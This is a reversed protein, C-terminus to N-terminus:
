RQTEAYILNKVAQPAPLLHDIGAYLVCPCICGFYILFIYFKISNIM